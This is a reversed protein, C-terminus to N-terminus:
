SSSWARRARLEGLLKPRHAELELPRAGSSRAADGRARQLPLRTSASVIGPSRSSRSPRCSTPIFTSATRIPPASSPSSVPRMKEYRFRFRAKWSSSAPASSYQRCLFRHHCVASRGAGRRRRTRRRARTRRRRRPSRARCASCPRSGAASSASSASGLRVQITPSSRSPSMTPACRVAHVGHEHTGALEPRVLDLARRAARRSRRRSRAAAPSARPSGRLHPTPTSRISISRM